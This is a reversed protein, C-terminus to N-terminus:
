GLSDLIAFGEAFAACSSGRLLEKSVAISCASAKNADVSEMSEPTPSSSASNSLPPDLPFSPVKAVVFGVDDNAEISSVGDIAAITRVREKGALARIEKISAGAAIVEVATIVILGIAKNEIM